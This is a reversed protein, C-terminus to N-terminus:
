RAHKSMPQQSPWCEATDSPTRATIQSEKRRQLQAM